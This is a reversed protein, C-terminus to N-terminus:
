LSAFRARWKKRTSPGSIKQRVAVAALRTERSDPLDVHAWVGRLISRWPASELAKASVGAAQAEERTFPRHRLEDPVRAMAMAAADRLLRGSADQAVAYGRQLVSLPSLADLSAAALALRERGEQLKFEVAADCASSAADLRARANNLRSRVENFAHSM